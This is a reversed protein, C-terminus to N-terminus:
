ITEKAKKLRFYEYCVLSALIVLGVLTISVKEQTGTQPLTKIITRGDKGDKGTTIKTVERDNKMELTVIEGNEKIEFPILKQNLVYGVLAHKERLFYKGKPLEDKELKIKGNEDTKRTIIVEKQENLLEFTVHALTDGNSSDFKTFELGGKIYDNIIPLNAMRNEPQGEFVVKNGWIDITYVGNDGTMSYDFEFEHKTPDLVHNEDVKLEQIYYKGEPIKEKSTSLGKVTNATAILADAPAIETGNGDVMAETLFLGFTKNDSEVIEYQAKEEEFKTFKEESKHTRIEIEQMFNKVDQEATVVEIEQGAYKFEFPYATTDIVQGSPAKTEILEYTGLELNPLEAKGDKDTTLTGVIEGDKYHLTGDATIKDKINKIVFEAGETNVQETVFDYDKGFETEKTTASTIAEKTKNIKILGKQTHNKFVVSTTENAVITVTKEEGHSVYGAPAKIEKVKINTGQNWKGNPKFEGKNDTIAKQTSGDPYTILMEMGPIPKGTKEDLKRILFDGQLNVKYPINVRTPDSVKGVM